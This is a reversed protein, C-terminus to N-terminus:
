KKEEARRGYGLECLLRSLVALREGVLEGDRSLVDSFLRIDEDIKANETCVEVTMADGQLG